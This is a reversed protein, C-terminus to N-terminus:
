FERSRSLCARYGCGEGEIFWSRGPVTLWLVLYPGVEVCFLSLAVRFCPSVQNRRRVVRLAWSVGRLWLAVRCRRGQVCVAEVCREGGVGGSGGLGTSSVILLTTDRHQCHFRV